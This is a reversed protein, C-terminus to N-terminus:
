SELQLMQVLQLSRIAYNSLGSFLVNCYDLRSSIFAHIVTEADHLLTISRIKAINSLHFFTTISKTHSQFTLRSDFIVGLIKITSSESIVCGDISV